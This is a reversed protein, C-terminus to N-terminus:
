KIFHYVLFIIGATIAVLVVLVLVKLLVNNKMLNNNLSAIQEFDDEGFNLSSTFFTKDM